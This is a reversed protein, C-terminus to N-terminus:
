GGSMFARLNLGDGGLVISKVAVVYLAEDPERM